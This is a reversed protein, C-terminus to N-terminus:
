LLGLSHRVQCPIETVTGLLQAIRGGGERCHLRPPAVSAAVHEDLATRLAKLHMDGNVRRFQKKAESLGAACWRLAM